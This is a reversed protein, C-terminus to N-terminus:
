LCRGVVHVGKRDVARARRSQQYLLCPGRRHNTLASKRAVPEACPTLQTRLPHHPQRVLAPTDNPVDGQRLLRRQIVDATVGAYGPLRQRLAATLAQALVRPM